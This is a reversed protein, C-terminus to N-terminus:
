ANPVEVPPTVIMRWEAACGDKPGKVGYMAPVQLYRTLCKPCDAVFSREIRARVFKEGRYAGPFSMRVLRLEMNEGCACVLQLTM